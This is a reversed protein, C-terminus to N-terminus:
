KKILVLKPKRLMVKHNAPVSEVLFVNSGIVVNDGIITDGGFISANSYITVNNGITPHRKAGKLASGASLSLAGLTVGQYLKVYNGIITTEGIVIGTGHDIFFPVGIESAPHIDIGTHRHIYESIIRAEFKLGLKSLEHAIRYYVIAKYGPYCAIIEEKSDAAPDSALFFNLDQRVKDKLEDIKSYFAEKQKKDNNVFPRKIKTENDCLLIESVTEAFDILELENNVM